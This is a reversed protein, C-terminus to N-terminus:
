ELYDKLTRRYHYTFYAAGLLGGVLLLGYVVHEMKKLFEPSGVNGFGPIRFGAQDPHAQQMRLVTDQDSAAKAQQAAVYGPDADPGAAQAIAAATDEKQQALTWPDVTGSYARWAIGATNSLLSDSWSM